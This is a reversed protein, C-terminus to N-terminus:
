AAAERILGPLMWAQFPLREGEARAAALQQGIVAHLVQDDCGFVARAVVRVGDVGRGGRGGGEVREVAVEVDRAHAMAAALTRPRNPLGRQAGSRRQIRARTHQHRQHPPDLIPCRRLRNHPSLKHPIAWCSAYAKCPFTTPTREPIKM